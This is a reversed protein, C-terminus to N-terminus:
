QVLSQKSYPPICCLTLRGNDIDIEMKNCNACTTWPLYWVMAIEAGVILRAVDTRM